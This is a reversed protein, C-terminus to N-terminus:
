KQHELDRSLSELSAIEQGVTAFICHKAKNISGEEDISINASNITVSKTRGYNWVFYRFSLNGITVPSMVLCVCTLESRRIRMGYGLHLM